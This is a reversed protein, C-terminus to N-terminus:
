REGNSQLPNYWDLVAEEPPKQLGDEAAVVEFGNSRSIDSETDESHSLPTRVRPELIGLLLVYYVFLGLLLCLIDKM